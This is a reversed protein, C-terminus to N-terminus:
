SMRKFQSRENAWRSEQRTACPGAFRYRDRRRGLPLGGPPHRDRGGSAWWVLELVVCRGVVAAARQLSSLTIDNKADLIRDVQTRSTTLLLAM